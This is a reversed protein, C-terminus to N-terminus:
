VGSTLQIPDCSVVVLPADSSRVRREGRKDHRYTGLPFGHITLAFRVGRVVKRKSLEYLHLETKILRPYGTCIRSWAGSKTRLSTM